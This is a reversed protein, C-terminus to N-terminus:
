SPIIFIWLAFLLPVFIVICNGTYIKHENISSVIGPKKIKTKILLKYNMLIIKIKITYSSLLM